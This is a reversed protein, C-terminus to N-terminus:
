ELSGGSLVARGLISGELYALELNAEVVAIPTNKRIFLVYDARLGEKRFHRREGLPVIRGPTLVFQESILDDEWGSAHLKPLIYNRCTDAETPM